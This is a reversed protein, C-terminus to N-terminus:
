EGQKEKPPAQKVKFHMRWRDNPQANEDTEYTIKLQWENFGPHFYPEFGVTVSGPSSPHDKKVLFRPEDLLQLLKLVRGCLISGVDRNLSEYGESYVQDVIRDAYDALLKEYRAIKQEETESM